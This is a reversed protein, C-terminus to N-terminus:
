RGSAAIAGTRRAEGLAGKIRLLSGDLAAQGLWWQYDPSQHGQGLRLDRLNGELAAYIAEIRALEAGATERRAAALLAAAERQKMAGIDLGRQAAAQQETTYRPSHCARCANWAADRAQERSAKRGYHPTAPTAAEITHCGACDPARRRERGADLRAIVGHKSLAWSKEAAGAHCEVCTKGPAPLATLWLILLVLARM